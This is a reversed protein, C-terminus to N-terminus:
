CMHDFIRPYRYIAQRLYRMKIVFKLDENTLKAVKRYYHDNHVLTNNSLLFLYVRHFDVTTEDLNPMLINLFLPKLMLCHAIVLKTVVPSYYRERIDFKRNKGFTTIVSICGNRFVVNRDAFQAASINILRLELGRFTNASSLYVIIFLLKTMEDITEVVKDNVWTLTSKTFFKNDQINSVLGVNGYDPKNVNLFHSYADDMSREQELMECICRFNERYSFVANTYVKQIYTKDVTVDEVHVVGDKFSQVRLAPMQVLEDYLRGYLSELFAFLGVATPRNVFVAFEAESLELYLSVKVMYKIADLIRSMYSTSYYQNTQFNFLVPAILVQCLTCGEDFCQSKIFKTIDGALMETDQGCDVEFRERVDACYELGSSARLLSLFRGFHKGYLMITNKQLRRIFRDDGDRFAVSAGTYTAVRADGKIKEYCFEFVRRGQEMMEGTVLKDYMEDGYEVDGFFQTIVSGRSLVPQSGFNPRMDFNSGTVEVKLAYVIVYRQGGLAVKTGMVPVGDVEMQTPPVINFLDANHLRVNGELPNLWRGGLKKVVKKNRKRYETGCLVIKNSGSQEEIIFGYYYLTHPGLRFFDNTVHLNYLMNRAAEPEIVPESEEEEAWEEDSDEFVDDELYELLAETPEYDTDM